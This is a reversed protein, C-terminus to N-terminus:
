VLDPSDVRLVRLFSQRSTEFAMWLGLLSRGAALFGTGTPTIWGGLRSRCRCAWCGGIAIQGRLAARSGGGALGRRRPLWFTVVWLDPFTPLLEAISLM